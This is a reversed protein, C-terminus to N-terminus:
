KPGLGLSNYRFSGQWAQRIAFEHQRGGAPQPGRRRLGPYPMLPEGNQLLLVGQPM